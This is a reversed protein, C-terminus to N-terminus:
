PGRVTARGTWDARAPRPSRWGCASAVFAPPNCEVQRLRPLPPRAGGRGIAEVVGERILGHLLPEGGCPHEVAKCAQAEIHDIGSDDSRRFFSMVM